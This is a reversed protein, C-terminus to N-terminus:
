GAPTATPTPTPTPTSQQNYDTGAAEIVFAQFSALDSISGPYKKGNVIITPTGTVKDVDSNPIPGNLARTTSDSVWKKFEQNKICTAIKDPNEVAAQTTLDVLQDDTLGTSNEAPQNAFLLNHFDYFQNPSYNAVCAAANTARTSYKTGQSLRDLVALPHIEVTTKGNALLGTIYDGNTAEFQGCYPCLYDVYMQIDLTGAVQTNPKPDEGAKLAATETAIAGQNLQIGDSAMNKPGPGSPGVSNVLVLAVVAVIAILGLVISGQLILRTRRDKKQQEERLVRAKERAALRKENKSLRADSM